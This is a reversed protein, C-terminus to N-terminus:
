EVKAGSFKVTKAWKDCEDAILKGFDASTMPMPAAGLDALKAKIKSDAL